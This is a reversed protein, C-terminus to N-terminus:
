KDYIYLYKPQKVYDKVTCRSLASVYICNHLTSYVYVYIGIYLYAYICVYM